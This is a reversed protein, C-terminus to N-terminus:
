HAGRLGRRARDPVVLSIHRSFSPAALEWRMLKVRKFSVSLVASLVFFLLCDDEFGGLTDIPYCHYIAWQNVKSAKSVNSFNVQSSPFPCLFLVVRCGVHQLHKFFLSDMLEDMQVSKTRCQPDHPEAPAQGTMSDFRPSMRSLNSTWLPAVCASLCLCVYVCVKLFIQCILTGLEGCICTCSGICSVSLVHSAWM